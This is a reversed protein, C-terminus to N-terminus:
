DSITFPTESKVDTIRLARQGELVALLQPLVHTKRWGQSLLSTPPLPEGTLRTRVLLRIDKSPYSQGFARLPLGLAALAATAAGGLVVKRRLKSTTM